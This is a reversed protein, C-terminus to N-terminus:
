FNFISKLFIAVSSFEVIVYSLGVQQRSSPLSGGLDHSNM